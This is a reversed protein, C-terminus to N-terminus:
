VLSREAEGEKSVSVTGGTCTISALSEGSGCTLTCNNNCADERVVHFVISATAGAPGPPGPAAPHAKRERGKPAKHALLAQKERRARRALKAGIEKPDRRARLAQREKSGRDGQKAKQARNDKRDPHAKTGRRERLGRHGLFAKIGKQDKLGPPGWTERPEKTPGTIGSRRKLGSSRPSRSRGKGRTAGAAGTRGQSGLYTPLLVCAILGRHRSCYVRNIKARSGGSINAFPRM